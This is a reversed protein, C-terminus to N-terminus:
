DRSRIEIGGEWPTDRQDHLTELFAQVLHFLSKGWSNVLDLSVTFWLGHWFILLAEESFRHSRYTSSWGTVVRNLYWVWPKDDRKFVHVYMCKCTFFANLRVKFCRIIPKPIQTPIEAPHEIKTLSREVQNLVSFDHFIRLTSPLHRPWVTIADYEAGWSM